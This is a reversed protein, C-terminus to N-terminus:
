GDGDDNGHDVQREDDASPDAAPLAEAEVTEIEPAARWDDARVIEIRQNIQTLAVAQANPQLGLKEHTQERAATLEGLAQLAMLRYRGLVEAARRRERPAMESDAAIKALVVLDVNHVFAPNELYARYADIVARADRRLEMVEPDRLREAPLYSM